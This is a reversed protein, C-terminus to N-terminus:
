DGERYPVVRGVLRHRRLSSILRPATTERLVQWRDRYLRRLRDRELGSTRSVLDVAAHLELSEARWGARRAIRYEHLVGVLAAAEAPTLQEFTEVVATEHVDPRVHEHVAPPAAALGYLFGFFSVLFGIIGLATRSRQDLGVCLGASFAALTLWRFLRKM